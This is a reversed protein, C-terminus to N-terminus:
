AHTSGKKFAKKLARYIGRMSQQNNVTFQREVTVYKDFDPHKPNTVLVKKTKNRALLHREPMGVSLKRAQQRLQKALVARM